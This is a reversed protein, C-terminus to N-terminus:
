NLLELCFFNSSATNIITIKGSPAAIKILSGDFDILTHGMTTEEEGEVITVYKIKKGIFESYM